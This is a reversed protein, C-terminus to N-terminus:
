RTIMKGNNNKKAIRADLPKIADSPIAWSWGHRKAGLIRGTQCFIQVRRESIGWKESAEQTTIYEM